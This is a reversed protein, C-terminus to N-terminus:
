VKPAEPAPTRPNVIRTVKLAAKCDECTVETQNISAPRVAIAVPKMGEPSARLEMRNIAEGCIGRENDIAFHIAKARKEAVQEPTLEENM